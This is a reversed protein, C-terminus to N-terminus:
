LLPMALRTNRLRWAGVNITLTAGSIQIAPGTALEFQEVPTGDATRLWVSGSGAEIPESFTLVLNVGPAM